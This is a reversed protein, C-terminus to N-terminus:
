RYRRVEGAAALSTLLFLVLLAACGTLFVPIENGPALHNALVNATIVVPMIALLWRLGEYRMLVFGLFFVGGLVVHADVLLSGRTTLLGFQALVGLLALAIGGLIVLCCALERLLLRQTARRFQAVSRSSELEDLAQESYRHARWEVAGMGLVLPAVALGLDLDALVFRADTNLLFAACLASYAVSPASLRLLLHIRPPKRTDPQARGTEHWSAALILVISLAACGLAVPLLDLVLHAAGGACAPIMLLALRAERKHIVLVCSSVQFGMQALCFVWLRTDILLSGTAVVGLGIGGSLRLSRGAARDLGHGLLRYAVLSMGMAWWWGIATTFVLGRVMTLAGLWDYAAPYSLSPLLFLPGHSLVRFTRRARQEDQRAEVERPLHRFVVVALAFVDKVGYREQAVQDTFGQSELVAAIQLEDVARGIMPAVRNALEDVAEIENM